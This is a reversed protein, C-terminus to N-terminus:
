WFIRLNHNKYRNFVKWLEYQSIEYEYMFTEEIKGDIKIEMGDDTIAHGDGEHDFGITANYKELLVKLESKFAEIKTM